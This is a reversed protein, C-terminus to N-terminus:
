YHTKDTRQIIKERIYKQAHEKGGGTEKRVSDRGTTGKIKRLFRM